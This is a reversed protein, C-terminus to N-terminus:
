WFKKFFKDSSHPDASTILFTDHDALISYEATETQDASNLTLTAFAPNHAVHYYLTTPSVGRSFHITYTGTKNAVLFHGPPKADPKSAEFQYHGSKKLTIALEFTEVSFYDGAINEGILRPKLNYIVNGKTIFSPHSGEKLNCHLRGGNVDWEEYFSGKLISDRRDIHRDCEGFRSRIEALSDFGSTMAIDYGLRRISFPVDSLDGQCRLHETGERWRLYISLALASILMVVLLTRISFSFRTLVRWNKPSSNPMTMDRVLQIISMRDVPYRCRHDLRLLYVLPQFRRSIRSSIMASNDRPNCHIKPLRCLM